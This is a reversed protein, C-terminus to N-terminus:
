FLLGIQANMSPVYAHIRSQENESEFVYAPASLTGQVFFHLTSTRMFEYGLIADVDLGGGWLGSPLPLNGDKDRAGLTQYRSVEFSGGGGYYLTNVADPDAYSLFGLGFGLGVAYDTHGGGLNHRSALQVLGVGLRATADLAWARFKNRAGITFSVPTEVRLQDKAPDTSNPATPLVGVRVDSGMGLLLHPRTEIQRVRAESDARLVTTRTLTEGISRDRLLAATAREAFTAFEDLRVVDIKEERANGSYRAFVTWGHRVPYLEVDITQKCGERVSEFGPEHTVHYEILRRLYLNPDVTFWDAEGEDAHDGGRRGAGSAPPGPPPVPPTAAVPEPAEAGAFVAVSPPTAAPGPAPKEEPLTAGIPPSSEPKETAAAPEGGPAPPKERNWSKEEIRVCVKVDRPSSPAAWALTPRLSWAFVVTCAVALAKMHTVHNCREHWSAFAGSNAGSRRYPRARVQRSFIVRHRLRCALM